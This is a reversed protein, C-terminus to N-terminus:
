NRFPRRQNVRPETPKPTDIDTPSTNDTDAETAETTEAPQKQMASNNQMRQMKQSLESFEDVERKLRVRIYSIEDYTQKLKRNAHLKEELDGRRDNQLDEMHRFIRNLQDLQEGLGQTIRNITNMKESMEQSIRMSDQSPSAVKIMINTLTNAERHFGTNDLENAIKNLSAVIQRKNM